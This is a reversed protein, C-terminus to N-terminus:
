SYKEKEKENGKKITIQGFFCGDEHTNKNRNKRERRLSLRMKKNKQKNEIKM